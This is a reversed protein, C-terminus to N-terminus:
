AQLLLLIERHQHRGGRAARPGAVGRGGAVGQIGQVGQHQGAGGAVSEGDWFGRVWEASRWV